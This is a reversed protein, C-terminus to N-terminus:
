IGEKIYKVIKELDDLTNDQKMRNAKYSIIFCNGKVYGKSPIVRDISPSSDQAYGSHMQLEIDLIPCKAPIVIDSEELDFEIGELKARRRTSILIAHEPNSKRKKEKRKKEKRKKQHSVGDNLSKCARCENRYVIEDGNTSRIPFESFDKELKCIRCKKM